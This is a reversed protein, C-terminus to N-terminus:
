FPIDSRYYTTPMRGALQRKQPSVMKSLNAAYDIWEKIKAEAIELDLETQKLSQRALKLSAEESMCRALAAAREERSRQHQAREEDFIRVLRDVTDTM